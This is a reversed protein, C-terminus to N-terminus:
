TRVFRKMRLTWGLWMHRRAADSHLEAYAETHLEADFSKAAQRVHARIDERKMAVIRSTHILIALPGKPTYAPRPSTLVSMPESPAGRPGKRIFMRM